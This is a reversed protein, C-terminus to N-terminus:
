KKELFKNMINQLSVPKYNHFELNVNFMKVKTKKFSTIIDNHSNKNNHIHGHVVYDVCGTRNNPNHVLEIEYGHINLIMNQIQAMKTNDHNGKIYIINGNLQPEISDKYYKRDGLCIDGLHYVIDNKSVVSNWERIIYEEMEKLNNFNRWNDNIMRIHGFHTDSIFWTNAM